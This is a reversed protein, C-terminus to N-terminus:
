VSVRLDAWVFEGLQSLQVVAAPLQTSVAVPTAGVGPIKIETGHAPNSSQLLIVFLLSVFDTEFDVCLIAAIWEM